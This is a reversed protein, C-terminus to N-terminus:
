YHHSTCRAIHQFIQLIRHYEFLTFIWGTCVVLLFSQVGIPDDSEDVSFAAEENADVPLRTHLDPPLDKGLETHHLVFPVHRNQFPQLLEESATLDSHIMTISFFQSNSPELLETFDDPEELLM